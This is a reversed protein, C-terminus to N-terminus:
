DWLFKPMETKLENKKEIYANMLRAKANEQDELAMTTNTRNIIERAKEEAKQNVIDELTGEKPIIAYVLKMDMAEAIEKLSQLTITGASERKEFNLVNPSKKKLRRALQLLSMNLASRITRIWGEPPVPVQGAQQFAALNRNVQELILRQKRAKMVM